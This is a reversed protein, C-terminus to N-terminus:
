TLSLQSLNLLSTRHEKLLSKLAERDHLGPALKILALYRRCLNREAQLFAKLHARNSIRSPIIAVMKFAVRSIEQGLDPSPELPLGRQSIILRKLIKTAHDHTPVLTLITDKVEEPLDQDCCWDLLSWEARLTQNLARIYRNDQFLTSKVGGARLAYSRSLSWSFAIHAQSTM